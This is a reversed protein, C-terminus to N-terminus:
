PLQNLFAALSQQYIEFAPVNAHDADPITILKCQPLAAAIKRGQAVPITADKEGHFILAPTKIAPAKNLSYFRYKLLLAPLLYPHQKKGVDVVSTYPSELILGGLTHRVAMEIAIGSGLSRGYVIIQQMNFGEKLLFAIATEADTYFGNESFNGSSKGYGRYDVILLSAHPLLADAIRQWSLLSTGNGHFYVIVKPKNQRIFIGNITEGDPTKLFVETANGPLNYNY